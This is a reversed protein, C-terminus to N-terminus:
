TMRPTAAEDSGIQTLRQILHSYTAWYLSVLRNEKGEGWEGVRMCHYKLWEEVGPRFRGGAKKVAPGFSLNPDEMMLKGVPSDLIGQINAISGEIVDSEGDEAEIMPQSDNPENLPSKSM